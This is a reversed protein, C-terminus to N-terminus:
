KINFYLSLVNHENERKYEVKTAIRRVLMVGLGGIPREEIPLDLDPEDVKTPDFPKGHDVITVMLEEGEVCATLEVPQGSEDYAYSIVNVVAEELALNLNFGNDPSICYTEILGEIWTALKSVQSVDNTLNLKHVNPGNYTIMLMTIDDSQEAGNVHADVSEVMTNILEKATQNSKMFTYKLASFVRKDGYFQKDKNEAETVGDTFMFVGDNKGLTIEQGQYPFNELVGLAINISVDLAEVKNGRKVIPACHGANCYDLKGTSLNLVGLFMTCFMNHNNGRCLTENMSSMIAQPTDDHLSLNRFLTHVVAMFLSAPVGKGSVDGICFYFKDDRIFYDYLDGGVTKAPCIYGCVDLNDCQPFPTSSDPLMGRQIGSAIQLERDMGAQSLAVGQLRRFLWVFCVVMIFISVIAIIITYYRMRDISGYVSAEPCEVAITWGSREITTFYFLVDEKNKNKITHHGTKHAMMMGKVSDAIDDTNYKAVAEVHQLLLTTDPHAVFRFNRDTMTVTSNPFPSVANCKNRFAETNIDIALVGLITNNDGYLPISYCTVVCGHSTERFPDSWMAKGTEVANRYWLKQKFDHIAGLNLQEKYGGVNTVYCAFGNPQGSSLYVEPELGVAIGCVQPNVDIFKNLLQSIEEQSPRKFTNYDIMVHATSDNDRVANGFKTSLLTYAADEVRQLQGDIYTHVYDIDTAIKEDAERSVEQQAWYVCIGFGLAFVIGGILMVALSINIINRIELAKNM